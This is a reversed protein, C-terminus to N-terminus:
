NGADRSGAFQKQLVIEIRRNSEKGQPTNNPVLPDSDGLGEAVVESAGGELDGDAGFADGAEGLGESRELALLRRDQDIGIARRPLM